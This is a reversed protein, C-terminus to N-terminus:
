PSASTKTGPEEVMMIQGDGQAQNWAEYTVVTIGPEAEKGMEARMQNVAQQVAQDKKKREEVIARQLQIQGEVKM